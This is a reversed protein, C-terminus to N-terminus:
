LFHGLHSVIVLQGLLVAGQIRHLVEIAEVVLVDISMTPLVSTVHMICSM